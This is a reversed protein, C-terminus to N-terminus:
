IIQLIRIEPKRGTYRAKRNIALSSNVGKGENILERGRQKDRCRIRIPM